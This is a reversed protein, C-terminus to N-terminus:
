QAMQPKQILTYLVCQVHVSERLRSSFISNMKSITLRFFSQDSISERETSYTQAQKRSNKSNVIRIRIATFRLEIEMEIQRVCTELCHIYNGM